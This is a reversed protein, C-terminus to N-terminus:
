LGYILKLNSYMSRECGLDSHIRDVSTLCWTREIDQKETVIMTGGGKGEGHRSTWEDSFSRSRRDACVHHRDTRLIPGTKKKRERKTDRPRTILIAVHIYLQSATLSHARSRALAYACTHMFRLRSHARTLSERSPPPFPGCNLM